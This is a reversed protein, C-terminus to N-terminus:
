AETAQAGEAKEEGEKPEPTAKRTPAAGARQRKKSGGKAKPKDGKTETAAKSDSAEGEKPQHTRMERPAPLAARVVNEERLRIGYLKSIVRQFIPELQPYLSLLVEVSTAPLFAAYGFGHGYRGGKIVAVRKGDIEDVLPSVPYRGFVVGAFERTVGREDNAVQVDIKMGVAQRFVTWGDGDRKSDRFEAGDLFYSLVKLNFTETRDIRRDDITERRMHYCPTSVAEGDGNVMPLEEGSPSTYIGKTLKLIAPNLGVALGGFAESEIYDRGFVHMVVKGALALKNSASGVIEIVAPELQNSVRWEFRHTFNKQMDDGSPMPFSTVVYPKKKIDTM